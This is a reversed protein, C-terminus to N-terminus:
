RTQSVNSDLRELVFDRREAPALPPVSIPSFGMSRYTELIRNFILMLQETSWDRAEDKVYPLPELIFVHRYRFLGARTKYLDISLGAEVAFALVDPLGYDLLHPHQPDADLHRGM